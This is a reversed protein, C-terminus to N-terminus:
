STSRSRSRIKIYLAVILVAIVLVLAIICLKAGAKKQYKAGTQLQAHADEMHVATQEINYDIRDLVTGQDIVMDQIEKFVEALGNISKVIDNIEKERETIEREHNSILSLQTDTFVADLEDDGSDVAADIVGAASFIDKSRTERGRLKQLYQSQTRRFQHSLDQLKTALSTQINKSFIATQKSTAATAQSENSVRKIKRQCEHFMRTVSDALTEISQEEGIRDDFGPLLHKRHLAELESLKGRIREVVEEVEEVVDIWKPPLVSLEVLVEDASGNIENAILGARESHDLSPFRTGDQKNNATIAAAGAAAFGAAAANSRHRTSTRSFSNRYQLFLLTRSRSAM